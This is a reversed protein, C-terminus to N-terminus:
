SAPTRTRDLSQDRLEQLQLLPGTPRALVDRLGTPNINPLGRGDFTLIDGAGVSVPETQVTGFCPALNKALISPLMESNATAGMLRMVKPLNPHNNTLTAHHFFATRDLIPQPLTSWFQAGTYSRGGLSIPTGVMSPDAAHAIDPFDYTGPANANVPDGLSSTSLILYQAKTPDACAPAAAAAGADDAWSRIPRTFLTLPLGTARCGSTSNLSSRSFM